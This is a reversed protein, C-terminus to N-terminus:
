MPQYTTPQKNTHTNIFLTFYEDNRCFSIVRYVHQFFNEDLFLFIGRGIIKMGKDNFLFKSDSNKYLNSYYKLEKM